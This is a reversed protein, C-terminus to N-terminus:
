YTDASSVNEWPKKKHNIGDENKLFTSIPWCDNKIVKFITDTTKMIVASFVEKLRIINRQYHTKTKKPNSAKLFKKKKLCSYGSTSIHAKRQNQEM